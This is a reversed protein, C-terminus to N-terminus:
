HRPIIVQLDRALEETRTSNSSTVGFNVAHTREVNDKRNISFVRVENKECRLTESIAGCFDMVFKEIKEKSQMMDKEFTLDVEFQFNATHMSDNALLHVSGFDVVGSAARYLSNDFQHKEDTFILQCGHAEAFSNL